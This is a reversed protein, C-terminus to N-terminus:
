SIQPMFLCHTKSTVYRQRLRRLETIPPLADCIRWCRRKVFDNGARGNLLKHVFQLRHLGTYFHLIFARVVRFCEPLCKLPQACIQLYVTFLCRFPSCVARLLSYRRTACWWLSLLLIASIIIGTEYSCSSWSFVARRLSTSLNRSRKRRM